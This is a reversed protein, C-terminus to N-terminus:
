LLIGLKLKKILWQACKLLKKKKVKILISYITESEVFSNEHWKM